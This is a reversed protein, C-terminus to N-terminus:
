LEPDDYVSDWDIENPVDRVNVLANFERADAESLVYSHEADKAM